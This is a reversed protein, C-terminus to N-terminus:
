QLPDNAAFTLKTDFKCIDIHPENREGWKLM